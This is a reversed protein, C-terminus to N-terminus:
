RGVRGRRRRRQGARRDRRPLRDHVRRDRRPESERHPGPVPPQLGPVDLGAAWRMGALIDSDFGGCKGLVRVPLIWPNWTAGSIGVANNASAGIIGAVRTGHWSSSSVDCDSFKQTGVDTQSVFDGPDTADADRGDGDNAVDADSVFDYGDLLRGGQGVRGLDPHDYRVGTDLVAIVIADSGTTTDWAHEADVASPTAAASRLYWQQAFRPDNPVAHAYRRRDPEAYEVGDDAELRALQANMPQSADLELVQLGAGLERAHAVRVGTRAALAAVRDAAALAQVRGNPAAARLKVIVRSGGDGAAAPARRVPNREQAQSTSGVLLLAALMWFTRPM